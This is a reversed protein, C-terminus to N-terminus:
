VDRINSAGGGEVWTSGRVMVVVGDLVDGVVVVFTYSGLDQERVCGVGLCATFTWACESGVVVALSVGGIVACVVTCVCWQGGGSLGRICTGFWLWVVAVFVGFCCEALHVVVQLLRGVVLLRDCSHVALQESTLIFSPERTRYRPRALIHVHIGVLTFDEACGGTSPPSELKRIIYMTDLYATLYINHIQIYSFLAFKYNGVM